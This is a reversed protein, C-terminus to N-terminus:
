LDYRVGTPSYSADPMKGETEVYRRRLCDNAFPGCCYIRKLENVVGTLETDSFENVFTCSRLYSCEFIEVKIDDFSNDKM